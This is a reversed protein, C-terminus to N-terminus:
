LLRHERPNLSDFLRELSKDFPQRKNLMQIIRVILARRVTRLDGPAFSPGLHHGTNAALDICPFLDELEPCFKHGASISHDFAGNVFERLYQMLQTTSPQTEKDVDLITETFAEQLPMGAYRSFGAGVIYVDNIDKHPM